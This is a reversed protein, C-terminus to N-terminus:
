EQHTHFNEDWAEITTLHWGRCYDCPYGRRVAWTSPLGNMEAHARHHRAAELAIKTDKREGLRQKGTHTCIPWNRKPRRRRQERSQTEQRSIGRRDHTASVM